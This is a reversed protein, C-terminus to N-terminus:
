TTSFGNRTSLSRTLQPPSSSPRRRMRGRVLIAGVAFLIAASPEPVPAQGGGGNGEVFISGVEGVVPLVAANRGKVDNLDDFVFGLEATGAGIADFALTAVEVADGPQLAALTADSLLSLQALDVVGATSIDFANFVEFFLEDGLATTFIVGTADIVSADYTIDLDYASIVEDGLDSFVVDVSIADGLGVSQSSPDFGITIAFAAPAPLCGLVAITIAIGRFFSMFAARDRRLDM